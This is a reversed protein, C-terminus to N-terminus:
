LYVEYYISIKDKESSNEYYDEHSNYPKQIDCSRKMWLSPTERRGNKENQVEGILHTRIRFVDDETTM